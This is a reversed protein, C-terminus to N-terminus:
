DKGPLAMSSSPLFSLNHNWFEAHNQKYTNNFEERGTIYGNKLGPFVREIYDLTKFIQDFTM